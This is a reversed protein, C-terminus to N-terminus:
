PLPKEALAGPSSSLWPVISNLSDAADARLHKMVTDAALTRFIKRARSLEALGRLAHHLRLDAIGGYALYTGLNYQVRDPEDLMTGSLKEHVAAMCAKRLTSLKQLSPQGSAGLTGRGTKVCSRGLSSMAGSAVESNPTNLAHTMTPRALFGFAAVTLVAIPVCLLALALTQGALWRPAPPAHAVAIEPDRLLESVAPDPDYAQAQMLAAKARTFDAEQLSAMAQHRLMRANSHRPKEGGRVAAFLAKATYPLGWPIGWPGLLLSYFASRLSAASRCRSCLTAKASSLRSYVLFSCVHYFVAVRLHLDSRECRECRLTQWKPVTAAAKSASGPKLSIELDYARRRAPDSLTHWAENLASMLRPASPARNVDPHYSRVSARYAARIQERSATASVGLMDYFTFSRQM